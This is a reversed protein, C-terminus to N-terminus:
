DFLAEMIEQHETMQAIILELLEATRDEGTAHQWTRGDYRWIKGTDAELFSSGPPLELPSM